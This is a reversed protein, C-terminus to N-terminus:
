SGREEPTNPLPRMEVVSKRGDHDVEFVHAHAGLSLTARTTWRTATGIVRVTGESREIHYDVATSGFNPAVVAVLDAVARLWSPLLLRRPLTDKWSLLTAQDFPVRAMSILLHRLLSKPSGNFDVFVLAADYPDLFLRACKSALFRRGLLDVGVEVTERKGLRQEVLEFRTGPKFALARAISEDRIVPRVLEDKLPIVRNALRNGQETRTVVDGFDAPITPSGLTVARQV